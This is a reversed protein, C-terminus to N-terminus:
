IERFNIWDRCRRSPVPARSYRRFPARDGLRADGCNYAAGIKAARNESYMPNDIGARPCRAACDRCNFDSEIPPAPINSVWACPVSETGGNPRNFKMAHRPFLPPLDFCDHRTIILFRVRRQWLFERFKTLLSFPPNTVIVGGRAIRGLCRHPASLPLDQYTEIDHFGAERLADPIASSVLDAPCDIPTRAPLRPRLWMAAQIADPRRTYWEDNPADKATRPM